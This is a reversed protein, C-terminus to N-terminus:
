STEQPDIGSRLETEDPEAVDVEPGPGPGEPGAEAGRDEVGPEDSGESESASSESESESELSAALPGAVPPVWEAQEMREATGEPTEKFGGIFFWVLGGVIAVMSMVSNVRFDGIMTATDIRFSEVWYRGVGYGIVYLPFLKGAKLRKTRGIALLVAILGLNWLAEYLFTPHFTTAEAYERPEFPRNVPDIELGWPLDTPRGYLEQNFWNGLRGVAQALPIAVAAADLGDPVDVKYFKGALLGVLFGLAIGGPIGLGGQWVYLADPFLNRPCEPKGCYLTGYDTIVHYARAGILGAPIAWICIDAVLDPDHGTRKFQRRAMWVAAAAGLAIMIGYYRVGLLPFVNNSPSPISAIM